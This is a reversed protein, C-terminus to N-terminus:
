KLYKKKRIIMIIVPIVILLSLVLGCIIIVNWHNVLTRTALSINVNYPKDPDNSNLYNIYNQKTIDGQYHIFWSLLEGANEKLDEVKISNNTAATLYQQFGAVLSSPKNNTKQFFSTCNPFSPLQTKNKYVTIYQESATQRQEDSTALGICYVQFNSEAKVHLTEDNTIPIGNSKLKQLTQPDVSWKLWHQKLEEPFQIKVNETVENMVVLTNKNDQPNNKILYQKDVINNNNISVFKINSSNNTLSLTKSYSDNNNKVTITFDTANLGDSSKHNLLVYSLEESNIIGDNKGNILLQENSNSKKALIVLMPQNTDNVDGNNLPLIALRQQININSDFFHSSPKIMYPISFYGNFDTNPSITAFLGNNVKAPLTDHYGVYVDGFSAISNNLNKKAVSRGIINGTFYQKNNVDNPLISNNKIQEAFKENISKSLVDNEPKVNVQNIIDSWKDFEVTILKNSSIFDEYNNNIQNWIDAESILNKNNEKVTIHFGSLKNSVNISNSIFQQNTVILLSSTLFFALILSIIKLSKTKFFNFFLLKTM